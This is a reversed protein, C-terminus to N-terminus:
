DTATNSIITHNTFGLSVGLLFWRDEEEGGGGGGGGSRRRKEREMYIVFPFYEEKKKNKFGTCKLKYNKM